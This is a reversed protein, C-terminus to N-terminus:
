RPARSVVFEDVRISKEGRQIFRITNRSVAGTAPPGHSRNSRLVSAVTTAGRAHRRITRLHIRISRNEQSSVIQYCVLHIDHAALEPMSEAAPAILGHKSVFEILSRTKATDAFGPDDVIRLARQVDIPWPVALAEAASFAEQSADRQM